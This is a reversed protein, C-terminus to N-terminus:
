VPRRVNWVVCGPASAPQLPRWSTNFANTRMQDEPRRVPRPVFHPAIRRGPGEKPQLSQVTETSLVLIAAELTAWKLLNEVSEIRAGDYKWRHYMAQTLAEFKQLLKTYIIGAELEAPQGADKM